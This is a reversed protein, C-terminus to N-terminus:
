RIRTCSIKPANIACIIPCKGRFSPDKSGGEDYYGNGAGDQGQLPIQEYNNDPTYYDDPQPIQNTTTEHHNHYSPKVHFFPNQDFNDVITPKSPRYFNIDPKVWNYEPKPRNYDPKPRDYDPKPRDYAQTPRDYDPKPRDYDPKPRDYDPKPRDYDPKPRDYNPKPRDYDPKPRNYDQPTHYIIPEDYITLPKNSILSDFNSFSDSPFHGVLQILDGTSM